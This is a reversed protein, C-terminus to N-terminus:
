TKDAGARDLILRGLVRQADYFDPRATTVKRLAAEAADLRSADILIMAREFELVTNEPNHALIKDMRSLAEDYRSDQAALKALIFEYSDNASDQALAPMSFVCAAALLLVWKRMSRMTDSPREFVRNVITMAARKMGDSHSPRFLFSFHTLCMAVHAQLSDLDGRERHDNSVDKLLSPGAIQGDDTRRESLNKVPRLALEDQDSGGSRFVGEAVEQHAAAHELGIARHANEGVVRGFGHGLEM